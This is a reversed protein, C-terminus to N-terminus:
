GRQAQPRWASPDQETKRLLIRAGNEVPERTRGTCRRRRGLGGADVRAAVESGMAEATERAFGLATASFDVATVQWGTAAQWVAEAGHGCGGDLARGPALDGAVDLLYANPPRQAVADGHERLAQSWRREWAERDFPDTSM